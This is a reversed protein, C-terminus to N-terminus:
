AFLADLDITVNPLTAPQVSGGRYVTESYSGDPQRRWATLTREYPHIRWIELDGRRQYEPLKEDVDYSGTSPSWVEVVLPLPEPYAELRRPRERLLRDVYARPAVLVDPVLFSRTSRSTRGSNLRLDFEEESLQRDLQRFLRTAVLNHETTMLDGPKQRLCGDWLEWAGEPDELAVREYTQASVPM